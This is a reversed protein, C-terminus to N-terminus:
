ALVRGRLWVGLENKEMTSIKASHMAVWFSSRAGLRQHLQSHSTAVNRGIPLQLHGPLERSDEKLFKPM